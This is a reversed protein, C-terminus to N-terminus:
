RKRFFWWVLVVGGAGIMWADTNERVSAEIAYTASSVKAAVTSIIGYEVMTQAWIRTM